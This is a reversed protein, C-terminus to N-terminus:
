CTECEKLQNWILRLDRNLREVDLGDIKKLINALISTRYQLIEKLLKDGAQTLKLYVLRRDTEDRWREVLGDSVLNDVLGTLTGPALLLRRQLEKMTIPNDASLKNMVWFRAMTINKENLYSRTYLNLIHNIERLFMELNDIYGLKM